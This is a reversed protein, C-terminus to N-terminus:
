SAILKSFDFNKYNLYRRLQPNNRIKQRARAKASEILRHMSIQYESDDLVKQWDEFVQLVAEYRHWSPRYLDVYRLTDRYYGARSSYEIFPRYYIYEQFDEFDSLTDVVIDYWRRSPTDKIHHFDVSINDHRSAFFKRILYVYRGNHRVLDLKTGFENKKLEAKQEDKHWTYDYCFKMEYYRPISFFVEEGNKGVPLGIKIKNLLFDKDIVGSQIAQMGWGKSAQVRPRCRMPMKENNKDREEFDKVDFTVDKTAYGCIYQIAKLKNGAVSRIVDIRTHSGYKWAKDLEVFFKVEDIYKDPIIMIHYHPRKLFGGYDTAYFYRFKGIRQRLVKLFSSMRESDFCPIGQYRPLWLNNFDLSAFFAQRENGLFEYYSRVFWSDSREKRCAPCRGCKCVLRVKDFGTKHDETVPNKIIRKKYCMLCDLLM